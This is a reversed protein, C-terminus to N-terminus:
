ANHEGGSLARPNAISLRAQTGAVLIAFIEPDGDRRGGRIDASLRWTLRQLAEDLTETEALGPLGEKDEGYLRALAEREAQRPATGSELERAAIAMANAILRAGFGIEDPLTPLIEDLLSARALALLRVGDPREGM